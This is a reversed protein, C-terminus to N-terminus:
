NVAYGAAQAAQKLAKGFPELLSSLPKGAVLETVV